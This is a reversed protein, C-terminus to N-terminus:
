VLGLWDGLFWELNLAGCTEDNVGVEAEVPVLTVTEPPSKVPAVATDKPPLLAADKVTTLLEVIVATTAAPALPLTLTIVGAPLAAKAPKVYQAAGEMETLVPDAKIQEPTEFVNVAVIVM